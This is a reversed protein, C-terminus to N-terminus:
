DPIKWKGQVRMVREIVDRVCGKGGAIPSIYHAAQLVERAADAPCTAFGVKSMVALDPLDDGMYLIRSEPEKLLPLLEEYAQIKSKKGTYGSYIHVIGLKRLREVVGQSSGGTIIAIKYGESIAANMAYGDRTNMSRLLEGAETLLLNGDTLVGDVDFIFANILKFDELLNM